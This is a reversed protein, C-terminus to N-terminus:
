FSKFLHVDLAIFVLLMFSHHWCISCSCSSSCCCCSHVCCSHVCCCFCHCHLSLFNIKGFCFSDNKMSLFHKRTELGMYGKIWPCAYVSASLKKRQSMYKVYINRERGRKWKKWALSCNKWKIIHFRKLSTDLAPIQVLSREIICRWGYGSSWNKTRTIKRNVQNNQFYNM